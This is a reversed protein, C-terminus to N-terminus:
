GWCIMFKTLPLVTPLEVRGGGEFEVKPPGYNKGLRGSSVSGM